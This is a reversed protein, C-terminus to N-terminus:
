SAGKINLSPHKKLLAEAARVYRRENLPADDDLCESLFHGVQATTIPEDGNPTHGEGTCFWWGPHNPDPTCGETHTWTTAVPREWIPMGDDSHEAGWFELKVDQDVHIGFIFWGPPPNLQWQYSM